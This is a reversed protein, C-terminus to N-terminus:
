RNKEGILIKVKGTSGMPFISHMSDSYSTRARPKTSWYSEIKNMLEENPTFEWVHQQFGGLYNKLDYSVNGVLELSQALTLAQNVNIIDESCLMEVLKDYVGANELLIKRITTRLLKM